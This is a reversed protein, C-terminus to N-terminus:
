NRPKAPSIIEIGSHLKMGGQVPALSGRLVQLNGYCITPGIITGVKEKATLRDEESDTDIVLMSNIQASYITVMKNNWVYLSDVGNYNLKSKMEAYTLVVDSKSGNRYMRFGKMLAEVETKHESTPFIELFGTYLYHMHRRKVDAYVEVETKNEYLRSKLWQRCLERYQETLQIAESEQKLATRTQTAASNKGSRPLKQEGASGQNYPLTALVLNIAMVAILKKMIIEKEIHRVLRYFFGL